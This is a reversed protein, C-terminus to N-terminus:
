ESGDPDTPTNRSVEFQAWNVASGAIGLGISLASSRPASGIREERRIDAATRERGLARLKRDRQGSTDHRFELADREIDDLIARASIGAVGAEGAGVAALSRAARAQREANFMRSAADQQVQDEQDLLGLVELRRARNASREVADANANTASASALQGGISAAMSVAAMVAPPCM